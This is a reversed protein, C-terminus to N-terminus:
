GSMQEVKAEAAWLRRMEDSTALLDSLAGRAVIEGDQM